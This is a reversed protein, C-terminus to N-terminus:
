ATNSFRTFYGRVFAGPEPISGMPGGWGASHGGLRQCTTVQRSGGFGQGTANDPPPRPAPDDWLSEACVPPVGAPAVRSSATAARSADVSPPARRMLDVRTLNCSPSLAHM